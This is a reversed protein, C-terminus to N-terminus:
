KDNTEKNTTKYLEKNELVLWLWRYIERYEKNSKAVLLKEDGIRNDEM